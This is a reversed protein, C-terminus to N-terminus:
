KAGNQETIRSTFILKEVAFISSKVIFLVPNLSIKESDKRSSDRINEIIKESFM